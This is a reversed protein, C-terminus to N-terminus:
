DVKEAFSEMENEVGRGYVGECSDGKGKSLEYEKFIENICEDEGTKM